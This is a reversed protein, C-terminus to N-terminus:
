SYPLVQNRRCRGAFHSRSGITGDVLCLSSDSHLVCGLPFFNTFLGAIKVNAIIRQATVWRAM